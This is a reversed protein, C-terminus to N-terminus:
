QYGLERDEVEPTESETLRPVWFGPAPKNSERLVVPLHQAFTERTKQKRLSFSLCQTVCGCSGCTGFLAKVNWFKSPNSAKTESNWRLNNIWYSDSINPSKMMRHRIYTYVKEEEEELKHNKEEHELNNHQEVNKYWRPNWVSEPTRTDQIQISCFQPSFCPHCHPVEIRTDISTRSDM